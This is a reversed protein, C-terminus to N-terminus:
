ARKGRAKEEEKSKKLHCALCLGQKNEDTDSGGMHLPVIHDVEIALTVREPLCRQCLYNDRRLVRERARQM